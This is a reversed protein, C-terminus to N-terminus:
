EGSSASIAGPDAIPMTIINCQFSEVTQFTTRDCVKIIILNKQVFLYIM